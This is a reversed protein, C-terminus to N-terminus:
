PSSYSSQFLATKLDRRFQLLSTVISYVETCIHEFHNLLCFFRYCQAIYPGCCDVLCQLLGLSVSLLANFLEPLPVLWIDSLLSAPQGTILEPAAFEASGRLRHVYTDDYIHHADGFDVLKLLPTSLSPSVDVLLNEPQWVVCICCTWKINCQIKWWKM